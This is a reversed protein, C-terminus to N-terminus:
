SLAQKSEAVEADHSEGKFTDLTSELFEVVGGPLFQYAAVASAGPTHHQAQPLAWVLEMGAVTMAMRQLLM